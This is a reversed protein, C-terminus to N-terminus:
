QARRWDPARLTVTRKNSPAALLKPTSGDAYMVYISGAREFVIQQDSPSWSPQWDQIDTTRTIQVPIDPFNLDIIWVDFQDTDSPRAAVAIRDSLRAWDPTALTAQALTGTATLNTTIGTV